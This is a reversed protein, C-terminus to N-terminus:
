ANGAANFFETAVKNTLFDTGKIFQCGLKYTCLIGSLKASFYVTYAKDNLPFLPQVNESCAHKMLELYNNNDERKEKM